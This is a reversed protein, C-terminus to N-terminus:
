QVSCSLCSAKGNRKWFSCDVLIPICRPPPNNIAPFKPYFSALAIHDYGDPEVHANKLKYETTQHSQIGISESDGHRPAITTPLFFRLSNDRWKFLEAYTISIEM